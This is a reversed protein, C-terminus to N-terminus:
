KEEYLITWTDKNTLPIFCSHYGPCDHIDNNNRAVVWGDSKSIFVVYNGNNSIAITIKKDEIQKRLNVYTEFTIHNNAKSIIDYEIKFKNKVIRM